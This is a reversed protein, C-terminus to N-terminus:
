EVTLDFDVSADTEGPISAFGGEAVREALDATKTPSGGQPPLHRLTVTLTGDGAAIADLTGELGLPLGNDDVDTPDHAVIADPNDGTAPGEVADGTVFVQHSTGEERVEVTVDETPDELENLFTISLEYDTGQTLVLPEIVPSGDGEPDAWSAVVPAGGGAPTATLTVTTVVGHDHDHDNGHDDDGEVDACAALLTTLALLHLPRM